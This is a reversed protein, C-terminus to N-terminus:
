YSDRRRGPTSQRIAQKLLNVRTQLDSRSPLADALVRLIDGARDAVSPARCEVAHQQVQRALTRARDRDPGTVFLGSGASIIVNELRYADAEMQVCAEAGRYPPADGYGGGPRGGRGRGHRGEDYWGDEEYPHVLAMYVIATAQARSLPRTWADRGLLETWARQIAHIQDRTLRHPRFGYYRVAQDIAQESRGGRWHAISSQAASSQAAAQAHPAASFALALAALCLVKPFRIM